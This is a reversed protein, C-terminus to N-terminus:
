HSSVFVVNVTTPKLMYSFDGPRAEPVGRDVINGNTPPCPVLTPPFSRDGHLNGISAYGCVKGNIEGM